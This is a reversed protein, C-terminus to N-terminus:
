GKWERAMRLARKIDAAQTRKDGGCLLVVIVAGSRMFYMRYGPGYDIRMESVDGSAPKWDGLNGLAVRRLRALIRAQAGPDRLGRRWHAFHDTEIIEFMAGTYGM